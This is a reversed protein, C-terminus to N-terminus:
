FAWRLSATLLGAGNGVPLPRNSGLRREPKCGDRRRQRPAPRGGRPAGPEDAAQRVPDERHRPHRQHAPHAPRPLWRRVAASYVAYDAPFQRRMAPEEYAIVFLHFCLWAFNGVTQINRFDDHTVPLWVLMLALGLAAERGAGWRLLAYPLLKNPFITRKTQMPDRESIPRGGM